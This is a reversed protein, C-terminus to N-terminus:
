HLKYKGMETKLKNSFCHRFNELGSERLSFGKRSSEVPLNKHIESGNTNTLNGCVMKLNGYLVMKVRAITKGPSGRM